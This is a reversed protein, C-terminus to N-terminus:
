PRAKAEFKGTRCVNEASTWHARRLEVPRANCLGYGHLDPTIDHHKCQGCFVLPAPGVKPLDDPQPTFLDVSM